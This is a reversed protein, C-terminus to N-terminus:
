VSSSSTVSFILLNELHDDLRKLDIRKSRQDPRLSLAVRDAHFLDVKLFLEGEERVVELRPDGPFQVTLLDLEHFEIAREDPVMM